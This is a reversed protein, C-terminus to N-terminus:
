TLLGTPRIAKTLNKEPWSSGLWNSERDFAYNVDQHRSAISTKPDRELSINTYVYVSLTRLDREFL